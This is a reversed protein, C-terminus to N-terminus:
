SGGVQRREGNVDDKVVGVHLVYGNGEKLEQSLLEDPVRWVVFREMLKDLFFELVDPSRLEQAILVMTKEQTERDGEERGLLCASVLTDVLPQVLAENYVCDSAIVLDLPGRLAKLVPQTAVDDTEWNLPITEVIGQPRLLKKGKKQPPPLNEALNQAALRTIAPIDSQVYAGVMTGLTSALVASVGCGLELVRSSATLPLPCKPATLYRALHPTISWLMAGTTGSKHTSNLLSPSQTLTLTFSNISLTISTAQPTHLGLPRSPPAYSALLTAEEYADEIQNGLLSLFASTSSM